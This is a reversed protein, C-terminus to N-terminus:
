FPKRVVGSNESLTDWEPPDRSLEQEWLNLQELISRIASADTIFSVIKM